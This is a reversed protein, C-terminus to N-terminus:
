IYVYHKLKLGKNMPSITDLRTSFAITKKTAAPKQYINKLECMQISNLLGDTNINTGMNITAGMASM